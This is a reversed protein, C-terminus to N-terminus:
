RYVAACRCYAVIGVSAGLSRDGPYLLQQGDVVFASSISVRQGNAAVHSPRVKSDQVTVWTKNEQERADAGMAKGGEAATQTETVIIAGERGKQIRSLIRSGTGAVATNTVAQNEERLMEAALASASRMDRASTASIDGASKLASSEIFKELGANARLSPIAETIVSLNAFATAVLDFHKTLPDRWISSLLKTEPSIGMSIILDRFLKRETGFVRQVVPEFGREFILKERLDVDAPTDAM